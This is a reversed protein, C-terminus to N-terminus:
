TSQKEAINWYSGNHFAISNSRQFGECATIHGIFFPLLGARSRSRQAMSSVPRGSFSESRVFEIDVSGYLLILNVGVLTPISALGSTM